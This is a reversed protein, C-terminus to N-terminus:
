IEAALGVKIVGSPLRRAVDSWRRAPHELIPLAHSVATPAFAAVRGPVCFLLRKAAHNQLVVDPL